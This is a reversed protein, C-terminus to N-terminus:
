RVGTHKLVVDFSINVVQYTHGKRSFGSAVSLPLAGTAEPKLRFLIM